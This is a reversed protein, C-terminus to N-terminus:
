QKKIRSLYRYITPESVELKKATEFVAGKLLFLGSENLERIVEIKEDKSMRSPQINYRNIITEISNLTLEEATNSFHEVDEDDKVNMFNFFSDLYNKFILMNGYDINLCLMGILKKKNDRIFFSSSKLGKGTDSVGKYNVLYNKNSYAEDKMIKLVLDTAPAGIKRNSINGNRIAVVSHDINSLDHLVVETEPGMVDALFNVIPIFKELVPNM